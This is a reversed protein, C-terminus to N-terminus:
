RRGIRWSSRWPLAAHLAVQLPDEPQRLPRVDRQQSHDRAEGFLLADVQDGRAQIGDKTPCV